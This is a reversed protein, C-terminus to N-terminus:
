KFIRHLLTNIIDLVLLTGLISGSIILASYQFNYDLILFLGIAIFALLLGIKCCRERIFRSLNFKVDKLKLYLICISIDFEFIVWIWVIAQWAFHFDNREWYIAGFLFLFELVFDIGGKKIRKM